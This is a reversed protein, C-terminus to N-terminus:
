RNINCVTLCIVVFNNPSQFCFSLSLLRRTAIITDPKISCCVDKGNQTRNEKWGRLLLIIIEKELFSYELSPQNQINIQMQESLFSVVSELFTGAPWWWEFAQPTENAPGVCGHLLEAVYRKPGHSITKVLSFAPKEIWLQELMATFSWCLPHTRLRERVLEPPEPLLVRQKLYLFYIIFSNGM